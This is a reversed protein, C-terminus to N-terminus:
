KHLLVSALTGGVGISTVLVCDIKEDRAERIYALELDKEATEFGAIPFSRQRRMAELGMALSLPGSAGLAFGLGAAVTTVGAFYAHRGFTHKMGYGDGFDALPRGDACSIVLDVQNQLYGASALAAQQVRGIEPAASLALPEATGDFIDGMGAVRAIIQAQREVAHGAEEVIVYAAGEAAVFGNHSVDFPRAVTRDSFGQARLHELLPRQLAQSGGAIVVDAVNAAILRAATIIAALGSTEAGGVISVPGRVGTARAIMHGYPVFLTAQGPARYPLGDAVAFRRADGGGAGIGAMELAQLAADIAISSGRDLFHSLNRPIGAHPRYGEPVPAAFFPPQEEDPSWEAGAQAGSALAEWAAAAGSGASSVM